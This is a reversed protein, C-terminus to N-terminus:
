KSTIQRCQFYFWDHETRRFGVLVYGDPCLSTYNDNNMYDYNVGGSEIIPGWTLGTGSNGPSVAGAYQQLWATDYSPPTANWVDDVGASATFSICLSLAVSVIVGKYRSLGNDSSLNM